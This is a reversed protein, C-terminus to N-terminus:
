KEVKEQSLQFTFPTGWLKEIAHRDYKGAATLPMKAVVKISRPRAYPELDDLLSRNLAAADLNGEVVAVIQNERGRGVPLSLVLADQRRPIGQNNSVGGGPGGAAWRGERRGDVRGLLAFRGGETPVVRDGMTFYGDGPDALGPSLYDSRVKFREGEIRVDVTDYPKFDTEGNARVRAAIGGTETSGYIEAIGVGTQGSFAGADEAALMGASSFALRLRRPAFPHGNLARYHAPVSILVTARSQNVVEEIEVPFSPTPAAVAADALLPTLIAYLLGYIHCPSVTAVLRDADTVAYHEIIAITEALLNRVTKTWMKPAGTSGGTFLRVWETEVGKPSLEDAPPWVAEGSRPAITRVGDPVSRPGDVVAHRFGTLERVEALVQPAFSHPMVLAPGGALSALMAAAVVAKDETCLCVLPEAVCEQFYRRLHAATAYLDPYSVRSFIYDGDKRQPGAMIRAIWANLETESRTIYNRQGLDV